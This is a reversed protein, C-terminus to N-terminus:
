IHITRENVLDQPIKIQKHTKNLYDIVELPQLKKVQKLHCLLSVSVNFLKSLIFLGFSLIPNKKKHKPNNIVKIVETIEKSLKIKLM